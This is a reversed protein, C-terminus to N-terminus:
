IQKFNICLPPTHRAPINFNSSLQVYWCHVPSCTSLSSNYVILDRLIRTLSVPCTTNCRHQIFYCFFFVTMVTVISLAHINLTHFSPLHSRSLVFQLMQCSIQTTIVERLQSSSSLAPLPPSLLLSNM